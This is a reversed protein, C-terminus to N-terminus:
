VFFYFLIFNHIIKFIKYKIQKTGPLGANNFLAYLGKDGCLNEIENYAKDM